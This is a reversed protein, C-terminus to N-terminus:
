KAGTPGHGVFRELWGRFERHWLASNQPKLIWHNEDPFYVFRTPVGKLRLTNYYEMGQTVPVRYDKEGHLVLTPVKVSALEARFDTKSFADVCAATAAVGAQMAM